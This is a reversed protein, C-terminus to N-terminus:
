FFYCNLIPLADFTSKPKKCTSQAKPYLLCLTIVVHLVPKTERQLIFCAVVVLREICFFLFYFYCFFYIYLLVMGVCAMNFHLILLLLHIKWNAAATIRQLIWHMIAVQLQETWPQHVSCGWFHIKRRTHNARQNKWLDARSVQWIKPM